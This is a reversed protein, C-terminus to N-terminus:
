QLSIRKVVQLSNQLRLDLAVLRELGLDPQPALRFADLALLLSLQAAQRVM